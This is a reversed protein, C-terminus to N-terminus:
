IIVTFIDSRLHEDADEQTAWEEIILFDEENECNRYLSTHLCGSERRVKEVISLFTQSLEKCKEPRVKM